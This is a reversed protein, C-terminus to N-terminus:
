HRQESTNKKAAVVDRGKEARARQYWFEAMAKWTERAKENLAGEARKACDEAHKRYEAVRNVGQEGMCGKM